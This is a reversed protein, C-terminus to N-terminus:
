NDVFRDVPLNSCWWHLKDFTKDFIDTSSTIGVQEITNKDQDWNFQISKSVYQKMIDFCIPDCNEVEQTYKTSTKSNTKDIKVNWSEM